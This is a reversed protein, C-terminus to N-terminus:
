QASPIAEGAELATTMADIVTVLAQYGGGGVYMEPGPLYVVQGKSFAKTGDVLPSKLTDAARQEESQITAARDLVFLWDPNTEAIFEHTVAAGHGSIPLAEAAEPMATADHIWGFRSGKGYASMKPGNTLVVLLDGKGAAAERLKALRADLDAQLEAAKDAKDFLAGYTALRLEAQPILDATMTMDVTPAIQAVADYKAASRGGIIILDPALGAIAELDPEFLTGVPTTGTADVYPLLQQGPIGILPVGLAQLTDIAATDMAVIRAPTGTLEVSGRATDIAPEAWLPAAFGLCAATAFLIKRM